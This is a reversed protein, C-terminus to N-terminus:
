NIYVWCIIVLIKLEQQENLNIQAEQSSYIQNMKKEKPTIQPLITTTTAMLYKLITISKLNDHTKHLQNKNIM